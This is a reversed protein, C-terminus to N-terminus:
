LRTVSALVRVRAVCVGGCGGGSGTGCGGGPRARKGVRLGGFLVRDKWWIETRRRM